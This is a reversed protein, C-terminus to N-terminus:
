PLAVQEPAPAEGLFHLDVCLVHRVLQFPGLRAADKETTLLMAGRRQAAAAAATAEAETFRHHDRYSHQEVVRAGLAQVTAAFAAPRAIGCLLVVDRDRLAALDLEAGDPERRLRSPRHESAFVPLDERGAIARLRTVRAALADPAMGGARTLLLLSARRLGSRFERLDGAPLVAGDAFPRAADLCVLDVDRQLRRHQFGDDLIVFDAGRAVLRRGAAVRDPDQEQLLWPLRRQLMLGEDNLEAGPERGYGRALVGPRRGRARALEALWLVTPTKGTGGVTLNGVSVVPVDLGHSRRLGCQFTWNRLAMGMGYLLGFPWLSQRLANRAPGVEGAGAGAGAGASASPAAM